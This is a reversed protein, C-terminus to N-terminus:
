IFWCDVSIRLYGVGVCMERERGKERGKERESEESLGIRSALLSRNLRLESARPHNGLSAM